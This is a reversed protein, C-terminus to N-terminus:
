KRVVKRVKDQVTQLYIGKTPAAIRRGSLDFYEAKAAARGEAQLDAIGETAATVKAKNANIVVGTAKDVLIAVVKLKEMDQIIPQGATNYVDSLLFSYNKKVAVDAAIAAPLSGDNDGVMESTLIAVDNYVLGFITEDSTKTFTDMYKPYGMSGDAYYNSQGWTPDTLGDAVLIYEVAFDGDTVEYPFTLEAEIDVNEGDASRSAKLSIDAHGFQKNRQALDDAVGLDKKGYDIGYYADLEVERDMYADPFGSVPSPFSDSDMIELEDGNHYSVLVYDDPYLQALMELGVYGRPCYGCWFGTYEELLSRKKPLTNLAILSMTATADAEENAVGNVKTVKVNLDYNGREAIAPVSLQSVVKKGFFGDVSANIHQTGSQGAVSFEVDFGNIGESGHNIVTIPVSIAEGTKVYLQEAEAITAANAKVKSGAVSVQVLASGGAIAAFDLWKLVGDSTHLYYGGENIASTIAVPTANAEVTLVDNVTLSYGAYVGGEPIIYPKDLTVTIFGPEAPTVSKVVLDAANKGNEVRLQSSLFVSINSVGEVEQLPFTISEIHTGVLAPDSIKVAVDYTEPKYNNTTVGVEEDGTYYGYSIPGGQDAPDVDPYAPTAAEPQVEAGLEMVDAWAIESRREEGLGRYIAQVGYAEPGIVYYYVNRNLGSAYIDWGDNYDFPVETMTEVELNRYDNWSLSLQKEEGNVRVWIAYSLKEPLIYNGDTDSTKIDFDLYGWGYGEYFYSVGGEFLQNVVPTVPTAAVETFPTMKAKDFAYLYNVDTKGANLLFTSSESLTKTAADYSFVIDADTLTYETYYQNYTPDYAEETTASMLYQHYGAVEDAGVYQGSKFTVKDGSLTGKVWTDPLNKDIGQVYVEDGAFGVQVLSGSYDDAMLSYTEVSLGEPAEVLEDTNKTLNLNWDAYGAWNGEDNVLAILEDGSEFASGAKTTINGTAADYELTLPGNAPVVSLDDNLAGYVVFYDYGEYNMVKQPFPITITSGSITGMVWTNTSYQTIINKIFVTNDDGFVVNGVADEVSMNFIYGWFYYYADGSRNYLVQKGDPQYNIIDEGINRFPANRRVATKDAQKKHSAFMLRSSQMRNMDQQRQLSQLSPQKLDKGTLRVAKEHQKQSLLRGTAKGQAFSGAAVILLALLLFTIRQRM